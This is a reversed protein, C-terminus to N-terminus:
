ELEPTLNTITFTGLVKAGDYTITKSSENTKSNGVASSAAETSTEDWNTEKAKATEETWSREYSASLTTGGAAKIEQEVGITVTDSHSHTNTKSESGGESISKEVSETYETSEELSVSETMEDTSWIEIDLNDLSSITFKPVNAITPNYFSVGSYIEDYDSVGDGDSDIMFPSTKYELEKSDILGDSDLDSYQLYTNCSADTFKIKECYTLKNLDDTVSDGTENVIPVGIENLNNGINTKSVTLNLDRKTNLWFGQNEKTIVIDNKGLWGRTKDYLYLESVYKSNLDDVYFDFLSGKLNWGKKLEYTFSDEEYKTIDVELSVNKTSKIWVGDGLAIDDTDSSWTQNNYNYMSSIYDNKSIDVNLTGSFSVLQWGSNLNLSFMDESIDYAYVYPTFNSQYSKTEFVFVKSEDLSPIIGTIYPYNVIDMNTIERINEVDSIDLVYSKAYKDTVYLKTKDRSLRMKSIDSTTFDYKAVKNLSTKDYVLIASQEIGGAVIIYNDLIKIDRAYMGTENTDAFLVTQPNSPEKQNSIDFVDFGATHGVYLKDNKKDIELSSASASISENSVKENGKYVRLINNNIAYLYESNPSFELDGVLFISSIKSLYKPNLKDTVDYVLINRRNGIYLLKGDNSLKVTSPTYISQTTYSDKTNALERINAPNTVDLISFGNPGNTLYLYKGDHSLTTKSTSSVGNSNLDLSYSGILSSAVIQSIGLTLALLSKKM